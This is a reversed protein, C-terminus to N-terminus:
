VGLRELPSRCGASGQVLLRDEFPVDPGLIEPAGHCVRILQELKVATPSGQEAFFCEIAMAQNAVLRKNDSRRDRWLEPEKAGRAGSRAM